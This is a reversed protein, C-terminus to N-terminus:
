RTMKELKRIMTSRDIRNQEILNEGYEYFAQRMLPHNVGFVIQPNLIQRIMTMDETIMIKVNPFVAEPLFYVRYNMNEKLIKLINKLHRVYLDYTYCHDKSGSVKEIPIGNESFDKKTYLPICEDISTDKLQELFAKQDERWKQFLIPDNFGRVSGEDMTALSPTSQILIIYDKESLPYNPNISLLIRASKLLESFERHYIELQKEETYMHYIGEEQMSAAGYGKICSYSSLFITHYFRQDKQKICYYSEIMGSMYLPLWSRIAAAMEGPDRDINHIIKIHIKSSICKRMLSAWRLLFTQDEILWDMNQDSYLFLEKVNNDLADYLFRLVAEQLGKSGYYADKREPKESPLDPINPISINDFTELLQQASIVSREILNEKEYLWKSFLEEDLAKEPLNALKAFEKEKHERILREYLIGSLNEAIAANTVPTRVGSRYRSILSPDLHLMQSLRVNSLSTLNMIQDLREGTSYNRAKRLPKLDSDEEKPVDGFLYISMAEKIIAADNIDKCGILECLKEMHNNDDAYNYLADITRNAMRGFPKPIRSGNRLRSINTRDFGAYEAIEAGYADLTDIISNFREAFM